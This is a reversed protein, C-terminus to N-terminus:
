SPCIFPPGAAIGVTLWKLTPVRSPFVARSKPGTEIPSVAVKNSGIMLWLVESIDTSFMVALPNKAAVLVHVETWAFEVQLKSIWQLGDDVLVLVVVSVTFEIANPAPRVTFTVHWPTTGVAVGV